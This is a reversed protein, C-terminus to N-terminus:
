GLVSSTGGGGGGPQGTGPAGPENAFVLGTHIGASTLSLGM